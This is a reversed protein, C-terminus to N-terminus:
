RNSSEQYQWGKRASSHYLGCGNVQISVPTAQESPHSAVQNNLKEGENTTGLVTKEGENILRGDDACAYEQGHGSRSETENLAFLPFHARGCVNAVACSDVGVEVKTWGPWASSTEPKACVGIMLPDPSALTFAGIQNM